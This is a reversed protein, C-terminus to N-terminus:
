KNANSYSLSVICASSPAPKEYRLFSASIILFNWGSLIGMRSVRFRLELSLCNSLLLISIKFDNVTNLSIITM